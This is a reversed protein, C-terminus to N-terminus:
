RARTPATGGDILANVSDHLDKNKLVFFLGGRGNQSADCKTPPGLSGQQNLDGFIVYHDDGSAATGIKAHNSPANLKIEKEKWEGTLAIAVRGPKPKLDPSWCSIRSSKTTSFIKPRTWWTATRESVGELISSVMQWPPVNLNSPKAILTVRSSLQERIIPFKDVKSPKQGLGDVLEQVQQPGGNRVVQLNTPDTAVSATKLAKLVKILDDKDLKLAFFHQSARLNNTTSICGLTNGTKRKIRHTGSGPWAPTSVQMVFGEGSDNWALMGKSHGWRGTCNASKGCVKPDGYFQDNWLVYFFSGNFVQDFTAGVPDSLTAGLCGAGQELTTGSNSAFAFQQGFAPKTRVKGGFICSRTKTSPGCGAFTKTSNFKFVFWWDVPRGEAVLPRPAAAASEAPAADGGHSGLVALAVAVLLMGRGRAADMWHTLPMPAGTM